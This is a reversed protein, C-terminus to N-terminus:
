ELEWRRLSTSALGEYDLGYSEATGGSDVIYVGAVEDPTEAIVQEEEGRFDSFLSYDTEGWYDSALSKSVDELEETVLVEEVESCGSELAALSVPDGVPYVPEYPVEERIEQVLEDDMDGEIVSEAAQDDPAYVVDFGRDFPDEGYGIVRSEETELSDFVLRPNRRGTDRFESVGSIGTRSALRLFEPDLRDSKAQKKSRGNFLDSLFEPDYFSEELLDWSAKRFNRGKWPVGIFM